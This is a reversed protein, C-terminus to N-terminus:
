MKPIFEVRRNKQRNEDSDNPYAPESEGRGIMKLRGSDIGVQNILYDNVSWARKKSLEMNYDDAGVDDTHGVIVVTMYPHADFVKKAEDLRSLYEPRIEAKNFDFLLKSPYSWCGREDVKVERPTGPCADKSDVVGDGDIDGDGVAMKPAVSYAGLITKWESPTYAIPKTSFVVKGDKVHAYAKISGLKSSVNEASLSLGYATLITHYDGAVYAMSKDKFNVADGDVIAFSSPVHKAAEPSLMLGYAVLVDNFQTATYSQNIGEFPITVGEPAEIALAPLSLVISVFLAAFLTKKLM